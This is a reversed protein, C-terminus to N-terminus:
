NEKERKLSDPRTEKRLSEVHAIAKNFFEEWREPDRNYYDITNEYENDTINHRSFVLQKISDTEASSKSTDQAIILDAYVLIFKDEDIVKEDSCSIITFM